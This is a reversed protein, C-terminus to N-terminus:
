RDHSAGHMPHCLMFSDAVQTVAEAEGVIITLMAIRARGATCSAGNIGYNELESKENVVLYTADGKLGQVLSRDGAACADCMQRLMRPLCARMCEGRGACSFLWCGRCAPRAVACGRSPFPLPWQVSQILLPLRGSLRSHARAGPKHTALWKSAKVDNGAADKATQAGGAGAVRHTDLAENLSWSPM